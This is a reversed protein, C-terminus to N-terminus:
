MYLQAEGVSQLVTTPVTRVAPPAPTITPAYCLTMYADSKTEAGNGNDFNVM